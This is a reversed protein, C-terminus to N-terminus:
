WVRREDYFSKSKYLDEDLVGEIPADALSKSHPDAHRLAVTLLSTPHAVSAGSCTSGAPHVVPRYALLTIGAVSRAGNKRNKKQRDSSRPASARTV